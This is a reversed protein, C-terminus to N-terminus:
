KFPRHWNTTSIFFSKFSECAVKCSSWNRYFAIFEFQCWHIKSLCLAVSHLFSETWGEIMRMNLWVIMKSQADHAVKMANVHFDTWIFILVGRLRFWAFFKLFNLSNYFPILINRSIVEFSERVPKKKENRPKPSTKINIRTM